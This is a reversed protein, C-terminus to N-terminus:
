HRGQTLIARIENLVESIGDVKTGVATINNEIQNVKERIEKMDNSHNRIEEKLGNATQMVSAIDLDQSQNKTELDRLRSSLVKILGGCITVIVSIVVGFIDRAEM